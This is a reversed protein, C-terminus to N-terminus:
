AAAARFVRKQKVADAFKRMRGMDSCGGLEADVRHVYLGQCKGPQRASEEYTARAVKTFGGM